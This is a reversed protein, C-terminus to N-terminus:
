SLRPAGSEAECVNSDKGELEGKESPIMHREFSDVDDDAFNDDDEDNEGSADASSQRPKPPPSRQSPSRQSPSLQIPSQPVQQLSMGAVWSPSISLVIGYMLEDIHTVLIIVVSNVLIETNGPRAFFFFLLSTLAIHFKQNLRSGM